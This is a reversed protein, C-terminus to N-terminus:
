IGSLDVSSGVKISNADSFGANVELVYDIPAGASYTKLGADPTGLTPIPVNKDIRVIKGDGIWIIDLPILMDKMWFVPNIKGEFIFLMGEDAKLSSTGSLGKTRKDTTDAIQVQIKTPGISVTKTPPTTPGVINLGSSGLFSSKQVLIGVVIIFVVVALIPLIIQKFM